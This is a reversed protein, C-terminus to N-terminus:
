KLYDFKIIDKFSNVNETLRFGASDVVEKFLAYTWNGIRRRGKTVYLKLVECFAEESNKNAYDTIFELNVHRNEM